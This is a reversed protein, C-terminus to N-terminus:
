RFLDLSRAFTSTCWGHLNIPGPGWFDLRAFGALRLAAYGVVDDARDSNDFVVLGNPKIVEAAIAAATNWAM